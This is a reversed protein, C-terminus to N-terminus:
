VHARGIEILLNDYAYTVTPDSTTYTKTLFRNLEDYSFSIGQGRADTQNILNSNADYSYTWSGMDPDTMSIKRGLPDYGMITLKNTNNKVQTLDGAANYSYYTNYQSQGKYEVVQILRGLYDKIEKKKCGDPDTITTSFGSYSFTTPNWQYVSDNSSIEIPRGRKDYYTETIPSDSSYNSHYNFSTCGMPVFFPGVVKQIRGMDDYSYLTNIAQQCNESRSVEAITRSLGDVFVCRDITSGSSDEKVRTIVHNPFENDYYEIAKQGEDPYNIGTLRGFPDYEYGTINGNEDTQASIKGFRLDYQNYVIHDIQNPSQGTRPYRIEIPYTQTAQDYITETLYNQPNWQKILNGYADYEYTTTPGTEGEINLCFKKSLLNGTNDEYGYV